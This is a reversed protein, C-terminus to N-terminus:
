DPIAAVLEPLSITNNDICGLTNKAEGDGGRKALWGKLGEGREVFIGLAYAEELELSTGEVKLKPLIMGISPLDGHPEEDGSNLRDLAAQVQAKRGAVLLPDTLPRTLRIQAAFEESVSCAAARSLVSFFELLQLVKDNM